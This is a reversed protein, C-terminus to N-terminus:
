RAAFFSARAAPALCCVAIRSGKVRLQRNFLALVDISNSSFSNVGAFDLLVKSDKVLRTALESFDERLDHLTEEGFSQAGKFEVHTVSASNSVALHTFTWSESVAADSVDRNTRPTLAQLAEDRFEYMEFIRHHYKAMDKGKTTLESPLAQEM